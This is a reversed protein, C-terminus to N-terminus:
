DREKFIATTPNVLLWYDGNLCGSFESSYWARFIGDECLKCEIKLDRGARNSTGGWSHSPACVNSDKRYHYDAKNEFAQRIEDLVYSPFKGTISTVTYGYNRFYEAPNAQLKEKLDAWANPHFRNALKKVKEIQDADTASPIGEISVLKAALDYGFAWGTRKSNTYALVESGHDNGIFLRFHHVTKPESLKKKTIKMRVPESFTLKVKSHLDVPLSQWATQVDAPTSGPKLAVSPTAPKAPKTPTTPPSPKAQAQPTGGILGFDIFDGQNGEEWSFLDSQFM